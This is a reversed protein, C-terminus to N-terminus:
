LGRGQTQAGKAGHISMEPRGVYGGAKMPGKVPLEVIAEEQERGSIREFLKSFRLSCGRKATKSVKRLEKLSM